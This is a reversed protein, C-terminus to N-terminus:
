GQEKKLQERISYLDQLFGYDGISSYELPGSVGGKVILQVSNEYAVQYTGLVSIVDERDQIPWPM